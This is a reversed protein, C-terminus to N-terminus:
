KSILYLLFKRWVPFVAELRILNLTGYNESMNGSLATSTPLCGGLLLIANFM